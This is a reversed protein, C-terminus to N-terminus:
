STPASQKVSVVNSATEGLKWRRRFGGSPIVSFIRRGYAEIIKEYYDFSNVGHFQWLDIYDTNLRRLSNEICRTTGVKDGGGKTAIYVQGRRDLIAKGIRVESDGYGIATDIFNVGLDLARQIVKIAEEEPPRQIAIGGIGVRSVLLNTKGLRVSKM